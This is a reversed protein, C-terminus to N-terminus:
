RTKDKKKENTEKINDLKKKTAEYEAETLYSYLKLFNDKSLEVFDRMKEKDDIFDLNKEDKKIKSYLVEKPAIEELQIMGYKSKSIKCIDDLELYGLLANLSELLADENSYYPGGGDGGHYIVEQM